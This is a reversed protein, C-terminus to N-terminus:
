SVYSTWVGGNYIWLWGSPSAVGTAPCAVAGGVGAIAQTTSTPSKVVNNVYFRNTSSSAAFASYSTGNASFCYILNNTAGANTQYSSKSVKLGLLTIDTATAPYYGKDTYFLESKQSINRLDSQVSTDNARATIGNYAVIVLAALIGIIVIVILLEVITFGSQRSVVHSNNNM